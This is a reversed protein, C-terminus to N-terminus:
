FKLAEVEERIREGETTKIFLLYLSEGSELQTTLLRPVKAVSMDSIKKFFTLSILYTGLPSQHKNDHYLNLDPYKSRVNAWISGVPVTEAGTKTALNKYVESIEDQMGPNDRYSWTIYLLPKAGISKILDILKEGYANFQAKRDIGSSSQNQLVVYDWKKSKIRELTTLGRNGKWHDEWNAGGATSQYCYWVKGQSQAISSVVEPVNWYYTFSNGVFLIKITDEAYLTSHLFCFLLLGLLHSRCNCLLNGM